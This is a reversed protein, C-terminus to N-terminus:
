TRKLGAVHIIIEAPTSFIILTFNNYTQTHGHRQFSTQDMNSVKLALMQQRGPQIPETPQVDSQQAPFEIGLWVM